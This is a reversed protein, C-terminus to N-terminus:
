AIGTALGGAAGLLSRRVPSELTVSAARSRTPEIQAPIPPDPM